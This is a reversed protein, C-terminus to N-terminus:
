GAMKLGKLNGYIADKPSYGAAVRSRIRPYCLGKLKCWEMLCKTEGNETYYINRRKNSAQVARTAFRCNSPSYNGNNDIRDLELGQEYGAEQAWDYFTKFNNRWEDCILIGRAGYNRYSSSNPALCRRKMSAWVSYLPHKRLGHKYAGNVDSWRSFSM